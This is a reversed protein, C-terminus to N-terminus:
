AFTLEATLKGKWADRGDKTASGFHSAIQHGRMM